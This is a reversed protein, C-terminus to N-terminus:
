WFVTSVSIVFYNRKKKAQKAFVFTALKLMWEIDDNEKPQQEDEGNM